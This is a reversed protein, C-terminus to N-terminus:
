VKAGLEIFQRTAVPPREPKATRMYKKERRPTAECVATTTERAGVKRVLQVSSANTRTPKAETNGLWVRCPEANTAVVTSSTSAITKARNAESSSSCGPNRRRVSNQIACAACQIRCRTVGCRAGGRVWM